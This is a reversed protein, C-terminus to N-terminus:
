KSEFSPSSYTGSTGSYFRPYFEQFFSDNRQANVMRGHTNNMTVAIMFAPELDVNPLTTMSFHLSDDEGTENENFRILGIYNPLNFTIYKRLNERPRVLLSKDVSSDDNIVYNVYSNISKLDCVSDM